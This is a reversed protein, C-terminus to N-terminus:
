STSLNAPKPLSTIITHGKETFKILCEILKTAMVLELDQTPDALLFVSPLNIFEVAISLRRLEGGINGRTSPREPIIREKCWVLEVMDLVQLVREKIIAEREKYSLHYLGM